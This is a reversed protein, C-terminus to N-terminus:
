DAKNLTPNMYTLLCNELPGITGEQMRSIQNWHKYPILLKFGKCDSGVLRFRGGLEMSKWLTRLPEVIDMRTDPNVQAGPDYRVFVYNNPVEDVLPSAFLIGKRVLIQIPCRGLILIERYIDSLSEAGASLIEVSKDISANCYSHPPNVYDPGTGMIGRKIDKRVHARTPLCPLGDKDLPFAEGEEDKIIANVDIAKIELGGIGALSKGIRGLCAKENLEITTQKLELM